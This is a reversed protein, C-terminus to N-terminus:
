RTVLERVIHEWRKGSPSSFERYILVEGSRILRSFLKDRECYEARTIGPYIGEFAFCCILTRRPFVSDGIPCERGSEWYIWENNSLICRLATTIQM